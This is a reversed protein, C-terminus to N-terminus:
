CVRAQFYCLAHFHLLPHVLHHRTITRLGAEYDPPGPKSDSFEFISPYYELPRM